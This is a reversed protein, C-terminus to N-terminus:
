LYVNLNYVNHVTCKFCYFMSILVNDFANQECFPFVYFM